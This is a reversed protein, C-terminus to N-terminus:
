VKAAAMVLGEQEIEERSPSPRHEAAILSYFVPVIFLTRGGAGESVPEPVIIKAIWRPLSKM